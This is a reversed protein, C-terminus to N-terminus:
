LRHNGIKAINKLRPAPREKSCSDPFRDIHCPALLKLRVATQRIVKKFRRIKMQNVCAGSGMGM